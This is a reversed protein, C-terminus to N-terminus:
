KKMHDVLLDYNVNMCLIYDKNLNEIYTSGGVCMNNTLISKYPKTVWVDLITDTLQRYLEKSTFDSGNKYIHFIPSNKVNFDQHNIFSDYVQHGKADLLWTNEIFPYSEFVM